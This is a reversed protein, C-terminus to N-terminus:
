DHSSVFNAKYVNKKKIIITWYEWSANTFFYTKFKSKMLIDIMEKILHMSYQMKIICDNWFIYNHIVKLQDSNKKKSSFKTWARWDNFIRTIIKTKKMQSFIENAFEEKKLTYRLIKNKVLRSRSKLEISHNM